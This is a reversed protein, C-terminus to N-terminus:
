KKLGYGKLTLEMPKMKFREEDNARIKDFEQIFSKIRSTSCMRYSEGNRICIHNESVNVYKNEGVNRKIALAIACTQSDGPKGNKIDRKGVRIKLGPM